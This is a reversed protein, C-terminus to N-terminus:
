GRTPAEAHFLDEQEAPPKSAAMDGAPRSRKEFHELAVPKGTRASEHIARIVRVDALGELGSPEPEKGSLICDSFYLIEPAVQDRKGFEKSKSKGQKSIELTTPMAYDYANDLCVYGETGTVSYWSLDAGNYGCTFTAQRDGPFTLIASSIEEVEHFRPDDKKSAMRAVVEIPEDQFLYRAANVCYVGLDWTPGGGRETKVRINDDKVQMSFSSNFFRPEGIAGSKIAEIAKLNAPEFHLRYATMLRVHHENAARIMEECDRDSLALPKECLVHIGQKASRVAFDKHLDNPLAIYVADIEGSALLEDYRDYGFGSQAGYKRGLKKLKEPDDSVLAALESNKKANAFAPLIAEQAFYGLGVVAYRVKKSKRDGSAPPTKREPM